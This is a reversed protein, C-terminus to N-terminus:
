SFYPSFHGTKPLWLPDVAFKAFSEMAVGDFYFRSGASHVPRGFSGVLVMNSVKFARDRWFCLVQVSGVLVM